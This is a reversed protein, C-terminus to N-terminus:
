DPLRSVCLSNWGQRDCLGEDAQTFGKTFRWFFSMVSASAIQSAPGRGVICKTATCLASIWPASVRPACRHGKAHSLTQDPTGARRFPAMPVVNPLRMTANEPTM